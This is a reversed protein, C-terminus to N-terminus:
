RYENYFRSIVEEPWYGYWDYGTRREADVDALRWVKTGDRRCMFPRNDSMEYFRAWIRPASTDAVM